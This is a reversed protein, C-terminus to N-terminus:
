LRPDTEDNLIDVQTGEGKACIPLAVLQCSLVEWVECLATLFLGRPCCQPLKSGLPTSHSLSFGFSLEAVLRFHRSLDLNLARTCYVSLVALDVEWVTELGKV